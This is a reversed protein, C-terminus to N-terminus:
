GTVLSKLKKVRDKISQEHQEDTWSPDKLSHWLDCPMKGCEGCHRFGQDQTCQYYPCIEKGIYAAWYVRGGTEACGKCEKGYQPCEACYAGCVCLM